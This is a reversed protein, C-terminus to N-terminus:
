LIFNRKLVDCLCNYNTKGGLKMVVTMVQYQNTTSNRKIDTNKKTRFQIINM